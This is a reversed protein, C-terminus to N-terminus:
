MDEIMIQGLGYKGSSIEAWILGASACYADLAKAVEYEPHDWTLLTDHMLVTGGPKVLPVYRSLEALTHDYEHNTDIFLIDPCPVATLDIFLDNGQIFTWIGSQEWQPPFPSTEMDVSMVTGNVKQAAALFASTSNGSRVGLELVRVEPYSSTIEYLLPM